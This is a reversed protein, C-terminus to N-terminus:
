PIAPTQVSRKPLRDIYRVVELVIQHSVCDFRMRPDEVAESDTVAGEFETVMNLLKCWDAIQQTKFSIPVTKKQGSPMVLKHAFSNRIDKIRVLNKRTKEGIIGLMLCVDIKASFSGLASEPNFLKDAITQYQKTDIVIESGQCYARIARQLVSELLSGTVIAAVRDSGNDIEHFLTQYFEDDFKYQMKEKGPQKKSV